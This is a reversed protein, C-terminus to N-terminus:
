PTVAAAVIKPTVKQGPRLQSRSGILVLEGEKVGDLVEIKDPTALGLKITREEVQNGATVVVISNGRTRSIAQVPLVLAQNRKELTLTVSAYVGPIIKLDPNPVEVEVDMTRTATDVKHTFRTIAGTFTRNLSDIEIRVPDHDRVDSIYSVSVPFVLRLRHLDSLRVLPLTQTSSSTGAQILAGPDAFRKTIVGAFPATILRYKILSECKVVESQCAKVQEQAAALSAAAVLDKSRAADLDQEALLNPQQKNVEALRTYALHADQYAAEASKVQADSRSLSARAHELDANLEPIELEALLQGVEVRDGVDVLIKELFGAVKAHLEVEQMPRFEAQVTLERALDSREIKAVAVTTDTASDTNPHAHGTVTRTILWVIGGVILFPVGGYVLVAPPRKRRHPSDTVGPQPIENAM